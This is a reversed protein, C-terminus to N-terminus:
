ETTVVCLFLCTNFAVESILSKSSDCVLPLKGIDCRITCIFPCDLINAAVVDDMTTRVFSQKTKMFCKVVYRCAVLGRIADHRRQDFAPDVKPIVKLNIKPASSVDDSIIGDHNVLEFCRFVTISGRRLTM